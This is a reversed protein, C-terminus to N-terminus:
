NHKFSRIIDLKKNLHEYKRRSTMVTSINKEGDGVTQIIESKIDAIERMKAAIKKQSENTAKVSILEADCSGKTEAQTKTVLTEGKIEEVKLQANADIQAQEAKANANLEAVSKRSKAQVMELDRNKLTM